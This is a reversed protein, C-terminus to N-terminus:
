GTDRNKVTVRAGPIASGSSDTITGRISGNISQSQAFALSTVGGCLFVLTALKSLKIFSGTM